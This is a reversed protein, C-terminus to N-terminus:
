PGLRLWDQPDQLFFLIYYAADGAVDADFLSTGPGVAGSFFYGDTM